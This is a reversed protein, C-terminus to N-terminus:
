IFLNNGKFQRCKREGYLYFLLSAEAAQVKRGLLMSVARVSTAKPVLHDRRSKPCLPQSEYEGDVGM